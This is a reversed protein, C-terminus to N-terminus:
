RAQAAPGKAEKWTDDPDFAQMARAIKETDEGLDKQYVVGDQNVLFTMIGSSAYRAPYAVLAFGGIMRGGVVYDYAGGPAHPGQAKLIRYYYGHYPTPRGGGAGRRYGAKQAEAVLPGLPSQVEGQGSPWYLGNRRGKDSAFQQAYEPGGAGDHGMRAYERQADVYALCTQITDLENRGIRRALIEHRGAATDFRWAAGQKVLPIPLPWDDPGVSLVARDAGAQELRHKKEYLSVFEQRRARDTVPDGSAVIDQSGPGLMAALAKTDNVKLAEVLAKVAEEPAAFTQQKPAAAQAAGFSLLVAAAGAV